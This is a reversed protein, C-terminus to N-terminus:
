HKSSAAMRNVLADKIAFVSMEWAMILAVVGLSVNLTFMPTFGYYEFLHIIPDCSEMFILGGCILAFSVVLETMPSSALTLSRTNAPVLACYLYTILRFVCGIVFMNGWQVHIETSLPSAQEHKSMIVGTWYITLIPFPNPSFGPTAKVVTALTKPEAVFSLNDLAKLHRWSSLKREVLVGCLGCGIYIFAISAHQLDKATWPGGAAAFHEMFINTSGYFLILALEVFEMTWLGSSQFRLWNSAANQKATVFRHNWAWGKNSFAGSYRALSVMGLVFFVGGKIFHALMNFMTGDLGYIGYTAVGTPLYILFYAFLAWNLVGTCALATKGGVQTAKKFLPFRLLVQSIRSRERPLMLGNSTKLHGDLDAMDELEFSSLHLNSDRLTLEPSHISDLHDHGHQLEEYDFEDDINLYRYAVALAAVAWHVIEGLFLFVTMPGFANKPFLDKKVSGMFVWYNLVLAVVLVTHVTLAPLYLYHHINWLVLVIPYLFVFTSVYLGINLWLASRRSSPTNYYTETSYHEWYLREEPELHTHLIPVGHHHSAKHPVPILTLDLDISDTQSGPSTVSVALAMEMDMGMDPAMAMASASVAALVSILLHCRM